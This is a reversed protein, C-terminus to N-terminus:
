ADYLGVVRSTYDTWGKGDDPLLLEPPVLCGETHPYPGWQDPPWTRHQRAYALRKAWRKLGEANAPVFKSHQGNLVAGRQDVISQRFYSWSRISGPKSKALVQRIAPVIETKLNYGQQALQWIPAIVAVSAVPHKDIGKISRLAQDFKEFADDAAAKPPDPPSPPLPSASSTPTATPTATPTLTNGGGRETTIGRPIAGQNNGNPKESKVTTKSPANVASEVLQTASYNASLPTIAGSDPLQQSTIEASEPLEPDTEGGGKAWRKLVNSRQKQSFEAAENITEQVRKAGIKGDKVWVKGLDILSRKLRSWERKGCSLMRAVREDDDPVDGDRSYLLDLLSNYAGRQEFTLEAMGALARDPDRKYFKM